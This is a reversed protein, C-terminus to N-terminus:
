PRSLLWSLFLIGTGATPISPNSWPPHPLRGICSVYSILIRDRTEFSRRFSSIAIWELIRAQLIEHVSSGPPSCNTPDGLTPCLQFLKAHVCARILPINSPRHSGQVTPGECGVM